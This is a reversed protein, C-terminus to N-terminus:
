PTKAEATSPQINKLPPLLKKTIHAMAVEILTHLAMPYDILVPFVEWKDNLNNMCFSGIEKEDLFVTIKKELIMHRTIEANLDYDDNDLIRCTALVPPDSFGGQIEITLDAYNSKQESYKILEEKTEQIYNKGFKM